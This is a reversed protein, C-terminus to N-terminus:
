IKIHVIGIGSKTEVLGLKKVIFKLLNKSDGGFKKVMNEKMKKEAIELFKNTEDKLNKMTHKSFTVLTDNINSKLNLRLFFVLLLKGNPIEVSHFPLIEVVKKRVQFNELFPKIGLFMEEGMKKEILSIIVDSRIELMVLKIFYACINRIKTAKNISILDTKEKKIKIHAKSCMSVFGQLTMILYEIHNPIRSSPWYKDSAIKNWIKNASDEISMNLISECQGFDFLVVKNTKGSKAEAFEMDNGDLNSIVTAVAHLEGMTHLVGYVVNNKVKKVFTPLTMFFGRTPGHLTETINYDANVNQDKEDKDLINFNFTFHILSKGVSFIRQMKIVAIYETTGHSFVINDSSYHVSVPELILANNGFIFQDKFAIFNDYATKMRNFEEIPSIHKPLRRIAKIVYKTDKPNAYTDAFSGGGLLETFGEFEKLGGTISM